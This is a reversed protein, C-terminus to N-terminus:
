GIVQAARRFQVTVVPEDFALANLSSLSWEVEDRTAIVNFSALSWQITPLLVFTNLSALSFEVGPVEVFVNISCLSFEFQAGALVNLSALSCQVTM